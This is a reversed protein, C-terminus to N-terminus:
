KSLKLSRRWWEVTKELGSSLDYRPTFGLEDRLRKIDAVIRKPEDPKSPIAGLRLLEPKGIIAAAIAAIDRLKYAEGSGINVAGRVDSDLLTAFAAGVDDVHFFDRVKEGHSCKAEENKLLSRIISPVFRNPTEHGGYVFFIRGWAYSLGGDALSRLYQHVTNKSVAYLTQPDVPSDTESLNERPEILAYEYCTGAVVARKGGCEVFHRFLNESAAAWEINEPADWFKGHEVYWAFHLLHTPKISEILSKVSDADLLDVNHHEIDADIKEGPRSSVAHVTYGHELLPQIATRGIFGGAGTLLVKKM